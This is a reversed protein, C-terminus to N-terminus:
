VTLHVYGLRSLNSYAPWEDSHIHSGQKCERQIIPVLTNRDRRLVYFYRCDTGQKLGFVWPGDVRKGHNRNNQVEAESDESSAMRDGQLVRGRNYKRRGAFRAEDIQIPNDATGEM